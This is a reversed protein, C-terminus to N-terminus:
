GEWLKRRWNKTIRAPRRGGRVHHLVCRYFYSPDQNWGRIHLRAGDQEAWELAEICLAQAVAPADDKSVVQYAFRDIFHATESNVVAHLVINGDPLDAYDFCVFDDGTGIAWELAGYPSTLDRAEDGRIDMWNLFHEYEDIPVDVDGVKAWGGIKEYEYDQSM